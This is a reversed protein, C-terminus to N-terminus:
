CHREPTGCKRNLIAIGHSRGETSLTQLIRSAAALTGMTCAFASIGVAADILIAYQPSLFRNALTSLPSASDALQSTAHVGFGLVQAYMCIFFFLAAILITALLALPVNRTPSSAEESFAAAGEFGGFALTTFVLAYGIGSWGNSTSDPHLPALSFRVQTLIHVSLHLIILVSIGELVLMGRAALKTDHWSLLATAFIVFVSALIWLDQHRVGLDDLLVMTEMGTLAAACSALSVYFLLLTWGAIFGCQPGFTHQLYATVSGRGHIRKEFAVFCLGVLLIAGTGILFSLPAAYGAAKVAFVTNFSLSITPSLVAISIGIMEAPSLLKRFHSSSM